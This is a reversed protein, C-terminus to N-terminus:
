DAGIWGLLTETWPPTWMLWQLTIMSLVLSGALSVLITLFCLMMGVALVLAPIGFIIITAIILINTV